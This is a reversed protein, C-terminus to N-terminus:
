FVHSLICSCIQPCTTRIERGCHESLSQADNAQSASNKERKVDGRQSSRALGEYNRGELLDRCDTWNIGYTTFFPAATVNLFTKRGGEDKGVVIENRFHRYKDIM